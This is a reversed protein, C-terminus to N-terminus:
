STDIVIHNNKSKIKSLGSKIKNIEDVLIKDHCSLARIVKILNSFVSSDVAEEINNKDKHFIPIVIYGLKKDKNATKRLARGVAQVIDVKSNKPDCFYIVDVAPVDIGETLCRANTIISRKQNKFDDLIKSRENTTQSGNVHFIKIEPYLKQHRIKFAEAKKVSSHFTIAHKANQEQMFKELAYNNAIEDITENDSIYKRQNIAAEMEKDNIGIAIIKYDVLIRKDIAQKFSMRHFEPGFVLPNSMDHIYNIAENCLQSKLNDSLIRPTATMYLRKKVLINTDFHILGFNGGSTKHAEDCIALDFSFPSNKIAKCVVELSQYTCYVITEHHTSFFDIIEEPNTSVKGGIEYVHVVASDKEKNIDKESCVCIYPISRNNNVAWENKIQRLLALSPVLVLTHKSQLREKIWLSVLTKGAGCPLILQGRDGNQFGNIVDQTAKQQYKRPTKITRSKTELGSILKKIENLTLSSINLLDVLTILKLQNAKKTLSHKNLGSANTFVIFYDAKDGDAFLHALRDKTWSINSEQDNRFKCQIASFTNDYGELILDVGHDIKGLNLKEKIIHPIESFLWVNKYEHRVAPETLYYYKCFEEFIKGAFNNQSQNYNLLKNHIDSWCSSHNLIELLLNVTKMAAILPTIM